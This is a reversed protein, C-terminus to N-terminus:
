KPLEKGHPRPLGVSGTVRRAVNKQQAFDHGCVQCHRQNAIAVIEGSGCKSCKEEAM